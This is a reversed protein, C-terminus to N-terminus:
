AQSIGVADHFPAREVNGGASIKRKHKSKQLILIVNVDNVVGEKGWTRGEEKEVM